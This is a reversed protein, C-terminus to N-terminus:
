YKNPKWARPGFCPKGDPIAAPLWCATSVARKLGAQRWNAAPHYIPVQACLHRRDSTCQATVVFCNM